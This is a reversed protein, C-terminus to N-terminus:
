SPIARAGRARRRQSVIVSQRNPICRYSTATENVNYVCEHIVSSVDNSIASMRDAAMSVDVSGAAGWVTANPPQHKKVWKQIMYQSAKVSSSGLEAVIYRETAKLSGGWVPERRSCARAVMKYWKRLHQEVEEVPCRRVRAGDLDTGHSTMAKRKARENYIAREASASVLVPLMGVIENWMRSKEDRLAILALKGRLKLRGRLKRLRGGPIRRPRSAESQRVGHLTRPSEPDVRAEPLSACASTVTAVAAQSAVNIAYITESTAPPRVSSPADQPAAAIVSHNWRGFIPPLARFSRQIMTVSGCLSPLSAGPGEFTQGHYPSM